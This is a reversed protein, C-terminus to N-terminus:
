YVPIVVSETVGGIAINLILDTTGTRVDIAYTGPITGARYTRRVTGNTGTVTPTVAGTYPLGAADVIRFVVAATASTRAYDWWDQYLVSVGAPTPGPSAFWYPIRTVTANAAGSVEVYGSYEGAPLGNAELTITIQQSAGAELSATERSLGPAPAGSSAPVVRLTYTDTASSLNTLTLTVSAMVTAGTGLNLSTPQAAVAGIVAAALNLVGSGAQSVTAKQGEATTAPLASNILLSRYQSATL